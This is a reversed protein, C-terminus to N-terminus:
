GVVLKKNEFYAFAIPYILQLIIGSFVIMNSFTNLFVVTSLIAVTSVHYKSKKPVLGLILFLLFISYLYLIIPGFWKTLTYSKSYMTGVTLFHRIRYTEIKEEFGLIPKIRKSLVDPVIESVFLEIFNYNATKTKNINEQFNALPSAGYLYTWFFEKPV